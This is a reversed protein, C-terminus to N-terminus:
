GWQITATRRLFDHTEGIVALVAPILLFVYVPIFIAFLGYWETAVLVYPAPTALFFAVLQARHDARSSDILTIFERQGLAGRRRPRAPSSRWAPARPRLSSSM